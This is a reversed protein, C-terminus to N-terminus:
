LGDDEEFYDGDEEPPETCAGDDWDDIPELERLDSPDAAEIEAMISDMTTAFNDPLEYEFSPRTVGFYIFSQMAKVEDLPYIDSSQAM